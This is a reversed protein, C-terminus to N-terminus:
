KGSEMVKAVLPKSILAVVVPLIVVISVDEVIGEESFEVFV